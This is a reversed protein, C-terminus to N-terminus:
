QKKSQFQVKTFFVPLSLSGLENLHLLLDGSGSVGCVCKFGRHSGGAGDETEIGKVSGELHLM